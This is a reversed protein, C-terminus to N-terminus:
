YWCYEKEVNFGGTKKQRIQTQHLINTIQAISLFLLFVVVVVVVKTAIAFPPYKQFCLVLLIICSLSLETKSM